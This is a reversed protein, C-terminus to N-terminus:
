MSFTRFRFFVSVQSNSIFPFLTSFHSSMLVSPCVPSCVFLIHSMIFNDTGKESFHPPKKKPPPSQTTKKKKPPPTLELLFLYKPRLNVFFFQLIILLVRVSFCLTFILCNQYNDIKVPAKPNAIQMFTQFTNLQNLSEFQFKFCAHGYVNQEKRNISLINVYQSTPFIRAILNQPKLTKQVHVNQASDVYRYGM